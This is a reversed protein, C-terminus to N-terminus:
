EKCQPKAKELFTPLRHGNKRQTDIHYEDGLWRYKGKKAVYTSLGGEFASVHGYAIIMPMGQSSQYTYITQANIKSLYKVPNITYLLWDCNGAAGCVTPVFYITAGHKQLKITFASDGSTLPDDHDEPPIAQHVITSLEQNPFSETRACDVGFAVLKESKMVRWRRSQANASSLLSLLLLGIALLTKRMQNNEMLAFRPAAVLEDASTRSLASKTPL